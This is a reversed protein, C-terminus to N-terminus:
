WYGIEIEIEYTNKSLKFLMKRKKMFMFITKSHFEFPFQNYTEMISSNVNQVKKKPSIFM